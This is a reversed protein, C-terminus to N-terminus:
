FNPFPETALTYADKNRYAGITIRLEDMYGKLLAAAGGHWGSAGIMLTSALYSVTDAFSGVVAGNVLLYIRGDTRNLSFGNWSEYALTSTSAMVVENISVKLQGSEVVLTLYNGTTHYGRQDFVVQAAGTNIHKMRWEFAFDQNGIVPMNSLDIIGTGPFYASAGGFVSDATSIVVGTNSSVGPIKTVESVPDGNGGDFHFLAATKNFLPDAPGPNAAQLIISNNPM